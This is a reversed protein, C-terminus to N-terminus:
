KNPSIITEINQAIIRALRTRAEVSTWAMHPTILLREQRTVKLLPSDAKMPEKEIVDLGVYIEKRDLVEALDNEKIIKGRGLNLLVAGTQLLELQSRGILGETQENLPAHISVIQSSSLLEELSNRPYFRDQNKGSTSFYSVKCGFASAVEAVRRGITGLGIIGWNKGSMERWPWELHNFTPSNCWNGGKVWSDYQRLRNSLMLALAFTQQVVSETSYGLANLVPIGKEAAYNLDIGDKGTKALCIGILNSAADIERAGLVVKNSIIIHASSIREIVQEPSTTSYLVLNGSVNQIPSLDVDSGLTQADLFVVEPM